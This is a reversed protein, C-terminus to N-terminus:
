EEGAHSKGFNANRGLFLAVSDFFDLAPMETLIRRAEDGSRQPKANCTNSKPAGSIFRKIAADIATADREPFASHAATLGGANYAYQLRIVVDPTWRYRKIM